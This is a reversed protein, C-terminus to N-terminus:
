IYKLLIQKQKKLEADGAARTADWAAARTADRAAGAAAGAVAGAVAWAARAADRAAAESAARAAAEAAAWAADGATTWVARAARVAEAADGAAARADWAAAEAADLQEATILGNAFDRAANIAKRPRNDEPYKEEFIHLVSEAFDAAMLHIEKDYDEVARLAWITDATGNSELITKLELPEDDAEIKNLFSLLKIWGEECPSQEKIKILTTQMILSKSTQTKINKQYQLYINFTTYKELFSFSYSILILTL